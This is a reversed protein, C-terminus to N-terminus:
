CKVLYVCFWKSLTKVVVHSVKFQIQSVKELEMQFFFWTVQTTHKWNFISFLLDLLRNPDLKKRLIFYRKLGMYIWCTCISTSINTWYHFFLSAKIEYTFRLKYTGIWTVFIVLILWLLYICLIINKMKIFNIFMM